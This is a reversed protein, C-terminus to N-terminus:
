DRLADLCKTIRRQRTEPRKADEIARVHERRYTYALADFASRLGSAELAVGLDPPVDVTREETDHSIEVDYTAGPMLGGERMERNVVMMWQGRYRSISSRFLSEGFTIRVPVRSNGPANRLADVQEQSMIATATTAGTPIVELAIRM